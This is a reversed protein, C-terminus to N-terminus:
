VEVAIHMWGGSYRFNVISRRVTAREHACRGPVASRNCLNAIGRVRMANSNLFLRECGRGICFVRGLPCM